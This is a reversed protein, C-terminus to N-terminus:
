VKGGAKLAQVLFPICCLAMIIFPLLGSVLNYLLVIIAVCSGLILLAIIDLSFISLSLGMNNNPFKDRFKQLTNRKHKLSFSKTRLGNEDEITILSLYTLSLGLYISGFLIVLLIFLFTNAVGAGAGAVYKNILIFSTFLLGVICLAMLIKGILFRKKLTEIPLDKEEVIAYFVITLIGVVLAISPIWDALTITNEEM